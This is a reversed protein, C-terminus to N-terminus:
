YHYAGGGMGNFHKQIGDKIRNQYWDEASVDSKVEFVSPTPCIAGDRDKLFAMNLCDLGDLTEKSGNPNFRAAEDPILGTPVKTQPDWDIIRTDVTSAFILKKQAMPQFLNMLRTEKTGHGVLHIERHPLRPLKETELREQIWGPYTKGPGNIEMGYLDLPMWRRYMDVFQDVFQPGLMHEIHMELVYREGTGAVAVVAMAGKSLGRQGGENDAPDTVIYINYHRRDLNEPGFIDGSTKRPDGHVFNELRFNTGSYARVNEYAGLYEHDPLFQRQRDLFKKTIWPYNQHGKNSFLRKGHIDHAEGFSPVIEIMAHDRYKDAVEDYLHRVGPWWTGIIWIMTDTGCTQIIDHFTTMVQGTKLLSRSNKSDVLDDLAWLRPHAGTFSVGPSFIFLSANEGPGMTRSITIRENSWDYGKAKFDGFTRCLNGSILRGKFWKARDAAKTKNQAGYGITMNRDEALLRLVECELGVSKGSDRPELRMFIFKGTKRQVEWSNRWFDIRRMCASYETTDLWANPSGKSDFLSPPPTVRMNCYKTYWDPVNALAQVRQEESAFQHERSDRRKKLLQEVVGM